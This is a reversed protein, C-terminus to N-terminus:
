PALVAATAAFLGFSVAAAMVGESLTGARSPAGLGLMARGAFTPMLFVVLFPDVSWKERHWWDRPNRLIYTAVLGFGYACVILAVAEFLELV